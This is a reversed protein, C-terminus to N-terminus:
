LRTLVSALLAARQALSQVLIQEDTAHAGRGLPGFGDLTPLGKAGAINTDAAGAAAAGSVEQGVARAAAAVQEMLGGDDGAPWAPRSTIIRVDVQAGERVPSLRSLRRLLRRETDGDVFRLGVDAHARAPVVNTRGGGSLTGVNCLVSPEEATVRRVVLLQDVLEDVASVGSGPDLAAHAERGRVEIRLRTSGLRATKLGGDPHPSELGLVAVAGDLHEEVVSRATPSGVEEDAVVLLRVPRSPLVSCRALVELAMEAVVLGGKMDFVGPGRM